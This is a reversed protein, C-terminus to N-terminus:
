AVDVMTGCTALCPRGLIIPTMRDERIDLILFDCPVVSRGIGISVDVLIGKPHILSRDALQLKTEYPSLKGIYGLKKYLSYAMLSVGAGLDCLANSISIGGITVLISFNGPDGLNPVTHEDSVLDEFMKQVTPAKTLM